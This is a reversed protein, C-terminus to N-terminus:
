NNPPKPSTLTERLVAFPSPFNPSLVRAQWDPVFRDILLFLALGQQQSWADSDAMMENLTQHWRSSPSVQQRKLQFRVWEGVGEMVSLHRLHDSFRAAYLAELEQVSHRPYFRQVDAEIGQGWGARFGERAVDAFGLEAALAALLHFWVEYSDILVGDLDFLVAGADRM